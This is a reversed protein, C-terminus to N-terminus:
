KGTEPFRVDEATGVEVEPVDDPAETTVTVASGEPLVLVASPVVVDPAKGIEPLEVEEPTIGVPEPVDAAETIVTVAWGELPVPAEPDVEAESVRDVEPVSVDEPLELKAKPVEETTGTTVTM